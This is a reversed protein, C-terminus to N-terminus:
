EPSAYIIRLNTKDGQKSYIKTFDKAVDTFEAKKEKYRDKFEFVLDNLDAEATAFQRREM